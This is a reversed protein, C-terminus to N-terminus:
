AALKQKVLMRTSQWYERVLDQAYPNGGEPILMWDPLMNKNVEEVTSPSYKRQISPVDKINHVRNVGGDGFSPDHFIHERRRNIEPVNTETETGSFKAGLAKFLGALAQGGRSFLNLDFDVKMESSDVRGKLFTFIKVIFLPDTKIRDKIKKSLAELVENKRYSREDEKGGPNKDEALIYRMLDMTKMTQLGAHIPAPAYAVKNLRFSGTDHDKAVNMNLEGEGLEDLADKIVTDKVVIQFDAALGTIEECVKGMFPFNGLKFISRVRQNTIPTNPFDRAIEPVRIDRSLHIVGIQNTQLDYSLITPAGGFDEYSEEHEESYGFVVLNVRNSNLEKDVRKAYEPDSRERASRKKFAEDIFPKIAEMFLNTPQPLEPPNGSEAHILPSKPLLNPAAIIGLGAGALVAATGFIFKRRGPNSVESDQVKKLYALANKHLLDLDPDELLTQRFSKQEPNPKPAEM